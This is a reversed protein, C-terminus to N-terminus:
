NDRVTTYRYGEMNYFTDDIQKSTHKNTLTSKYLQMEEKRQKKDIEEKLIYESSNALIFHLGRPYHIILIAFCNFRLMCNLNKPNLQNCTLLFM